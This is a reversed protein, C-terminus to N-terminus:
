KCKRLFLRTLIGSRRGKSPGSPKVTHPSALRMAENSWPREGLQTEFRDIILKAAASINEDSFYQHVGFPFFRPAALDPYTETAKLYREWESRRFDEQQQFLKSVLGNFYDSEAFNSFHQNLLPLVGAFQETGHQGQANTLKVELLELTEPCAGHIEFLEAITQSQHVEHDMDWIQLFQTYRPVFRVDAKAFTSLAAEPFQSQENEWVGGTAVTFPRAFQQLEACDDLWAELRESFGPLALLSRWFALNEPRWVDVLGQGSSWTGFPDIAFYYCKADQLSVREHIANLAEDLLAAAQDAQISGVSTDTPFQAIFTDGEVHTVVETAM